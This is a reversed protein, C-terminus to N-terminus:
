KSKTTRIDDGMREQEFFFEGITRSHLFCAEAAVERYRGPLPSIPHATYLFRNMEFSIHQVADILQQKDPPPKIKKSSM